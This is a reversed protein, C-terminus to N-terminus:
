RVQSKRKLFVSIFVIVLVVAVGLASLGAIENTTLADVEALRENAVWGYTTSGDNKIIQIFSADDKQQLVKVLTGSYLKVVEGNLTVISEESLDSTMHLTVAAFLTANIQKDVVGFIEEKATAKINGIQHSKVFGRNNNGYQVYYWLTDGDHFQQLVTARQQTTTSQQISVYSSTESPLSYIYVVGMSNFKIDGDFAVLDSVATDIVAIKSDTVTVKGNDVSMQADDSKKVWGFKNGVLVYYYNSNEAGDYNLIIFEGVKDKTLINEISTSDDSTKYIINTPYGTSTALVFGTYTTPVTKSVTDSGITAIADNSMSSSTLTYIEIQQNTNLLVLKGNGNVIKVIDFNSDSYDYFNQATYGNNGDENIQHLTKAGYVMPLVGDNIFIGFIHFSSALNSVQKQNFPDDGIDTQDFLTCDFRKLTNTNGDSGAIYIYNTDEEENGVNVAICAFANETEMGTIKGLTKDALICKLSVGTATKELFYIADDYQSNSVSRLKGVCVDLVNTQNYTDVLQINKGDETLQYECFNGAFVVFLREGSASVNVIQESFIHTFKHANTNDTIDFCLLAGQNDAVNDAVFLNNGVLAIGVPSIFHIDKAQQSDAFALNPLLLCAILTVCIFIFSLKKM